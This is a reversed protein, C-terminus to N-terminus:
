QRRGRRCCARRPLLRTRRRRPAAGRCTLPRGQWTADPTGRARTPSPPCSTASSRRRRRPPRVGEYRDVESATSGNQALALARVLDLKAEQTYSYTGSVLYGIRQGFVPDNGGVSLSTSGNLGGEDSRPTWSNRFETVMRNYDSQGPLSTAFNGFQQIFGPLARPGAGIALLDGSVYAPMPLRRGVIADSGGTSTSMAWTRRAPFERTQIDVTAGSFDGPQDPTFTKITTISQLLGTPFLDLPVVKKEPEPSPIRAGNLSTQTYRDGLGRVFVYKGDQVSVGAVRGVAQAADGDPSKAIQEATVSSVVNVSNKQADLASNVSGREADATVVQATLQFTAATLSIDQVLTQGAELYLGTVTKPAYGIRRVSLTVTGPLVNGISFRGEVGSQTGQSTGVVQVGADALGIGSAADINRGTIRGATPAQTLGSAPLVLTVLLTNRLLTQGLRM